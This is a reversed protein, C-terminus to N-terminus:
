EEVFYNCYGCMDIIKKNGMLMNIINQTELIGLYHVNREFKKGCKPCIFIDDKMLIEDGKNKM